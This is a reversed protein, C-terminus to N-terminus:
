KKLKQGLKLKGWNWNAFLDYIQAQIENSFDCIVVSTELAEEDEVSDVTASTKFERCLFLVFFFYSCSHDCGHSHDLCLGLM